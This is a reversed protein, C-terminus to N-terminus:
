KLFEAGKTMKVGNPYKQKFANLANNRVSVRYAREQDQSSRAPTSKEASSFRSESQLVSAVGNSM